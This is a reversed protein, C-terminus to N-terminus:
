HMIMDELMKHLVEKLAQPMERINDKNINAKPLIKFLVDDILDSMIEDLDGEAKSAEMARSIMEEAAVDGYRKALSERLSKMALALESILVPTTGKMSVSGMESKIM